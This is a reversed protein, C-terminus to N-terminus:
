RGVEFGKVLSAAIEKVAAPWDASLPNINVVVGGIEDAIVSASKRNFEQQVFITKIGLTLANDVISKLAAPSPEKGENEVAVQNLGYDRAFYGLVPHYIM